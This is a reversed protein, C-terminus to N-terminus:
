KVLKKAKKFLLEGQNSSINKVEYWPVLKGVTTNPIKYYSIIPDDHTQLRPNWWMDTNPIQVYYFRNNNAIYTKNKM